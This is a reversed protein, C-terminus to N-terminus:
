EDSIGLLKWSLIEFDTGKSKDQINQMASRARIPTLNEGEKWALKIEYDVGIGEGESFLDASRLFKNIESGINVRYRAVPHIKKLELSKNSKMLIQSPSKIPTEEM